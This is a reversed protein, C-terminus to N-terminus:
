FMSLHSFAHPEIWYHSIIVGLVAGVASGIAYFHRELTSAGQMTGVLYTWVHTNVITFGFLFVLHGNAMNRINASMLVMQGLGVLFRRQNRTLSFRSGLHSYPM